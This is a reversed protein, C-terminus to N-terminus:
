LGRARIVVTSNQMHAGGGSNYTPEGIVDWNRGRWAILSYPGGPWSRALLKYTSLRDAPGSSLQPSTLPQAWCNVAVGATGPVLVPNGDEDLSQVAPYVTVTEPGQDILTM